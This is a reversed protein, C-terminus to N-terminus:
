FGVGGEQLFIKEFPGVLGLLLHKKVKGVLKRYLSDAMKRLADIFLLVFQQEVSRSWRFPINM